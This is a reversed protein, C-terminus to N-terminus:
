DTLGLMRLADEPTELTAVDVGQEDCAVMYETETDQYRWDTDPNKVEATYLKGDYLVILDVPLTRFVRAGVLTLARIIDPENKDRNGVKKHYHPM